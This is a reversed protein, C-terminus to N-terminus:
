HGAAFRAVDAKTIVGHTVGACAYAAQTVAPQQTNVGASALLEHTLGGTSTPDPFNQIGHSRICRAFALEAAIQRSSQTQTQSSNSRMAGPVVRACTSEAALVAPAQSGLVNKWGRTGPDPIDPVGHSRVCVTFRLMAQPSVTSNASNSSGPSNSSGCGALLVAFAVVALFKHRHLTM